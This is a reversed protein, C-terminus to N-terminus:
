KKAFKRYAFFGGIIVVAGIGIWMGYKSMFGAEAESTNNSDAVGSDTNQTNSGQQIATSIEDLAERSTPLAIGDINDVKRGAKIKALASKLKDRPIQELAKQRAEKSSLGGEQLEKKVMRRDRMKKTLFNDFEANSVDDVFDTMSGGGDFNFTSENEVMFDNSQVLNDFENDGSFNNCNCM